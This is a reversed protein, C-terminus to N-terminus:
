DCVTVTKRRKTSVFINIKYIVIEAIFVIFSVVCGAVLILFCIKVHKISLGFYHEYKFKKHKLKNKYHTVNELSIYKSTTLKDIVNDLLGSEFYQFVKHNFAKYFPSNPIFHTIFMASSFQVFNCKKFGKSYYTRLIVKAKIDITCLASNESNLFFTVTSSPKLVFRNGLKYFRSEYSGSYWAVLVEADLAVTFDKDLIEEISKIEKKQFVTSIILSFFVWQIFLMRNINTKPMHPVSVSTLIAWTYFVIYSTNKFFRFETTVKKKILVTIVVSLTSIMFLALWLTSQFVEYFNGHMLKMKPCTYYWKIDSFFYPFTLVTRFPTGLEAINIIKSHFHSATGMILVDIDRSESWRVPIAKLQTFIEEFIHKELITAPAYQTFVYFNACYVNCGHFVLPFKDSFPNLKNETTLGKTRDMQGLLIFEEFNGCKWGNWLPIWTYMEVVIKPFVKLSATNCEETIRPIILVINYIRYKEFVKGLTFVKRMQKESMEPFTIIINTKYTIFRGFVLFALRFLLMELAKEIDENFDHVIVIIQESVEIIIENKDFKQLTIM